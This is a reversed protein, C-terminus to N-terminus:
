EVLVLKWSAQAALKPGLGAQANTLELVLAVTEGEKTLPRLARLIFVEGRKKMPLTLLQGKEGLLMLKMGPQLGVAQGAPVQVFAIGGRPAPSLDPEATLMEELIASTKVIDQAAYRGVVLGREYVVGNAPVPGIARRIDENRILANRPLNGRVIFHLQFRRDEPELRAAAWSWWVAGVITVLTGATALVSAILRAAERVFKM